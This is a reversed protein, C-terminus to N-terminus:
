LGAYEADQLKKRLAINELELKHALHSDVNWDDPDNYHPPRRRAADTLPTLQWPTRNLHLGDALKAVM